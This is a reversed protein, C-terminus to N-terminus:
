WSRWNWKLKLKIYRTAHQFLILDKRCYLFRRMMLIGNLCNVVNKIVFKSKLRNQLLVAQNGDTNREGDIKESNRVKSTGNGIELCANKCSNKLCDQKSESNESSSENNSDSTNLNDYM